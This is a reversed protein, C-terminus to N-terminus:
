LCPSNLSSSPCRDGLHHFISGTERIVDIECMGQPAAVGYQFKCCILLGYCLRQWRQQHIGGCCFSWNECVHSGQHQQGCCLPM